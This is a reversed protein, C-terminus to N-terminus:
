FSSMQCCRLIKGTKGHQRGGIRPRLTRVRDSSQRTTKTNIAKTTKQQGTSKRVKEKPSSNDKLGKNVKKEGLFSRHNKPRGKKRPGINEDSAKPGQNENKRPNQHANAAIFSPHNYDPYLLIAEAQGPYHIAGTIKNAKVSRMLEYTTLHEERWNTKLGKLGLDILYQYLPSGAESSGVFREELWRKASDINRWNPGSM